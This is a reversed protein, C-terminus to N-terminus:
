KSPAPTLTCVAAMAELLPEFGSFDITAAKKRVVQTAFAAKGYKDNTMKGKHNPDFVKAGLKEALTAKDFLDEIITDKKGLRPVPVVYLNRCVHYYPNSGDIKPGKTKVGKPSPPKLQESIVSWMKGSASDNDVLVIVPVTQGGAHFDHFTNAYQGVFANLQGAGGNLPLLEGNMDSYKFFDISPIMQGDPLPSPALAPFKGALKSIAAKLYISDTYGECIVLPKDNAFFKDYVKFRECMRKFAPSKIQFSVSLNARKVQYLFALRGRLVERAKLPNMESGHSPCFCAGKSTQAHFM